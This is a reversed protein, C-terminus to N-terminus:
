EAFDEGALPDKRTQEILYGRETPWTIEVRPPTTDSNSHEVCVTAGAERAKQLDRESFTLHGLRRAWHVADKVMRIVDEDTYQGRSEVCRSGFLKDAARHFEALAKPTDVVEFRMWVFTTKKKSM